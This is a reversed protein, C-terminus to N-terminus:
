LGTVRVKANVIQLDAAVDLVRQHMQSDAEQRKSNRVFEAPPKVEVIFVPSTNVYILLLIVFDVEDCPGISPPFYQPVVKFLTDPPFMTNLLRNWSGYFPKESTTSIFFSRMIIEPWPRTPVSEM